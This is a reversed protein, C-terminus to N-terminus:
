SFSHNYDAKVDSLAVGFVTVGNTLKYGQSLHAMAEGIMLM